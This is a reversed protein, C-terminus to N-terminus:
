LHGFKSSFYLLLRYKLENILTEKEPLLVLTHISTWSIFDSGKSESWRRSLRVVEESCFEIYVGRVDGFESKWRSVTKM